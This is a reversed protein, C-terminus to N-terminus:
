QPKKVVFQNKMRRMSEEVELQARIFMIKAEAQAEQMLKDDCLSKRLEENTM